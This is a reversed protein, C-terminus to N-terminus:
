CRKGHHYKIVTYQAGHISGYAELTESSTKVSFCTDYCLSLVTFLSDVETLIILTKFGQSTLLFGLSSKM